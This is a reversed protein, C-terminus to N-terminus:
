AVKGLDGQEKFDRSIEGEWRLISSCETELVFTHNIKEGFRTVSGEGDDRNVKM